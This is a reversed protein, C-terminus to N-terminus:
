CIKKRIFSFDFATQELIIAVITSHYKKLCKILLGINMLNSLLLEPINGENNYFEQETIKHCFDEIDEIHKFVKNLIYQVKAKNKSSVKM